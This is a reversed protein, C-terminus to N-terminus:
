KQTNTFNKKCDRPSTLIDKLKGLVSVNGLWRMDTSTCSVVGHVFIKRSAFLKEPLVIPPQIHSILRILHPSCQRTNETANQCNCDDM